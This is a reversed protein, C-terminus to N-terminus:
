SIYASFDVLYVLLDALGEAALTGAAPWRGAPPAAQAFCEGFIRHSEPDRACPSGSRASKTSPPPSGASRCFKLWGAHFYFVFLAM